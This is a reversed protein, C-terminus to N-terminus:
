INIWKRFFDNLSETPQPEKKTMSKAAADCKQWTKEIFVQLDPILNIVEGELAKEKKILLDDITKNLNPDNILTRLTHFNMPPVDNKEVIWLAALLPRLIYFYKKIRIQGTETATELAGKAIGLYHHLAARPAFYPHIVAWLEKQFDPQAAYVIPSQLWEFLTVNGGRTLRLAKRLEWGGFDLNDPTVASSYDEKMNDIVLYRDKPYAYLFRIDFDSNPSAFGWGRSGSECAFLLQINDRKATETLTKKIKDTMKM